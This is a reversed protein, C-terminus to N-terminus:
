NFMTISNSIYGKIYFVSFGNILICNFSSSYWEHSWYFWLILISRYPHGWDLGITICCVSENFSGIILSNEERSISRVGTFFGEIAQNCRDIKLFNVMNDSILWISYHLWRHRPIFFTEVEVSEPWNIIFHHVCFVRSQSGNNNCVIIFIDFHWNILGCNTLFFWLNLLINVIIMISSNLM